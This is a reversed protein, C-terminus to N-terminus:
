VERYLEAAKERAADDRAKERADEAQQFLLEAQDNTRLLKVAVSRRGPVVAVTAEKFGMARVRVVHRGASVKTLELRGSSDSVGRRIEDIWVIANPETTITFAGSAPRAVTTRQPFANSCTLFLLAAVSLLPFKRQAGRTAGNVVSACLVPVRWRTSFGASM